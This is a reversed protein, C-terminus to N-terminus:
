CLENFDGKVRKLEQEAAYFDELRTIRNKCKRCWFSPLNIGVFTGGKSVYDLIGAEKVTVSNTCITCKM